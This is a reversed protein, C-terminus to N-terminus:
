VFSFYLLEPNFSWGHRFFIIEDGMQPYFPTRRPTVESLWESPRFNEPIRDLGGAGTSPGLAVPPRKKKSPGAAPQSSDQGTNSTEDAGAEQNSPGASVKPPTKFLIMFKIFYFVNWQM